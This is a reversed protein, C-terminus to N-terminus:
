SMLNIAYAMIPQPFFLSISSIIHSLDCFPPIQGLFVSATAQSPSLCATLIGATQAATEKREAWGDAWTPLEGTVASSLVHAMDQAPFLKM